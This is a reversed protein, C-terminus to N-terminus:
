DGWSGTVPVDAWIGTASVDSWLGTTTVDAWTGTVIKPEPTPAAGGGAIRGFTLWRLIASAWGGM